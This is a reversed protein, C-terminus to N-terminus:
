ILKEITIDKSISTTYGYELEVKLPTEYETTTEIGDLLCKIKGNKNRLVLNYESEEFSASECKLENTSLFAKVKIRNIDDIPRGTCAAGFNDLNVIQGDGTNEVHIVFQPKVTTGDRPMNVEVKTIAVPAGQGDNLEVELDKHSCARKRNLERNANPDICVTSGLITKYQYCARAWISATQKERQGLIKKANADFEIIETDGSPNFISKGQVRFENNGFNNEIEIFDSIFGIALVGDQSEFGIDQAGDNKLTLAVNFEDNELINEPPANKIFGMVLGNTGKRVDADTIPRSGTDRNLFTSCGSIVILILMGLFILKYRKKDM